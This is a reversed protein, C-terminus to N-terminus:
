RLPDIASCINPRQAAAPFGTPQTAAWGDATACAMALQNAEPTGDPRAGREGTGARTGLGWKATM